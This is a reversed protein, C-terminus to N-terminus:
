HHQTKKIEEFRKVKGTTTKVMPQDTVAVRLIKKYSPLGENIEDVDRCIKEKILRKAECAEQSDSAKSDWGFESKMYEPQYVIKTCIVLDREDEATKAQGYVICEEVYPLSAILLEVEEPYVNKGNKLVIVNKKRGCLFLFGDEDIYGLDGTHLWGDKLTKETEEPNEYYGLMINSGKAIIEGVGDEDPEDIRVEVGPMARGCSGTRREWSNEAAIVPSAETMGYGQVAVIGLNYFGELVLPDIAAAGTIVTRLNGGLQDIIERFVRRRLDVGFKMLLRTLRLGWAVKREKGQKKVAAMIRKYIAEILLPVCFFVSVRYEAINKQLHKLGDCFTTTIGCALMLTQGTSGFTHHYPLFAMNVDGRYLEEVCQLSYVNSTINQHSLMVAKAMSTTGSTFLLIRVAKPDITLREYATDGEEFAARGEKVLTLVDVYGEMPEMCIYTTVPTKERARVEEVSGKMEPSFVLVRSDSRILSAELEEVPLGKDLPVCVGDGCLTAFYALMWPYSNKGIIAIRGQLLNRKLFATGLWNVQRFMRQFTIKEYQPEQGKAKHKIIFATDDWYAKSAYTLLARLDEHFIPDYQKKLPRLVNM